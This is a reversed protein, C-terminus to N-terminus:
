KLLTSAIWIWGCWALLAAILRINERWKLRPPVFRFWLIAPVFLMVLGLLKMKEPM